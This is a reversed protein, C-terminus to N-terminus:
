VVATLKDYRLLRYQVGPLYQAAYLQKEQQRRLGTRDTAASPAARM